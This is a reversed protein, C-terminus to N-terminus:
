PLNKREQKVKLKVIVFLFKAWSRGPKCDRNFPSFSRSVKSIAKAVKPVIKRM